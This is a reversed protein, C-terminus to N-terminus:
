HPRKDAQCMLRQRILNSELRWFLPAIIQGGTLPRHAPKDPTSLLFHPIHKNIKSHSVEMWRTSTEPTRHVSLSVQPRCVICCLCLRFFLHVCKTDLRALSHCYLSLLPIGECRNGPWAPPGDTTTLILKSCIDAEFLRQFGSSSSSTFRLTSITFPAGDVMICYLWRMRYLWRGSSAIWIAFRTLRVGIVARTISQLHVCDPLIIGSKARSSWLYNGADSTHFM